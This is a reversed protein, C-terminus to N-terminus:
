DIYELIRFPVVKRFIGQIQGNTRRTLTLHLHFHTNLMPPGGSAPFGRFVQVFMQELSLEDVVFRVHVPRPDFGPRRPSLAAVVALVMASGWFVLILWFWTYSETRVACYITETIFVLGNINCLSIIATHESIWEFCM